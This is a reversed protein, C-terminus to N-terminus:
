RDQGLRVKCLRVQGLRVSGLRVGWLGQYGYTSCWLNFRGIANQRQFMLRLFINQGSKVQGLRDQSLTIYGLRVWGLGAQGIRVLGLRVSGLRVGWLGQYGYTSRWLYNDDNQDKSTTIRNISVKSTRIRKLNEINKKVKSM